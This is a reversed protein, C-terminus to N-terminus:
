CEESLSDDCVMWRTVAELGGELELEAKSLARGHLLKGRLNFVLFTDCFEWAEQIDHTAMVITRTKEEQTEDLQGRHWQALLELVLRSSRVDLNSLPEDAFIVVPDHVIARLVGIRQGQGGSVPGLRNAVASLEGDIAEVRRLLGEVKARCERMSYGQLVLPLAVNEWGTLYPMLCSTQFVFGFDRQRIRARVQEERIRGYDIVEDRHPCRYVIMGEPLIDGGILGLLHLLTSKGVGSRGIIAVRAGAPIEFSLGEFVRHIGDYAFKLGAIKFIQGDRM